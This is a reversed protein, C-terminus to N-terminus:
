AFRVTRWVPYQRKLDGFGASHLFLFGFIVTFSRLARQRGPLQFCWPRISHRAGSWGLIYCEEMENRLSLAEFKRM